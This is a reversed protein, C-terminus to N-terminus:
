DGFNGTIGQFGHKAQRFLWRIVRQDNYCFALIHNLTSFCSKQCEKKMSNLQTTDFKHNEITGWDYAASYMPFCPALTGDVRVILSNQGARCNWDELDGQIFEKMQSLREVSNVMHYGSKQKEVLWDVLEAVAARDEERIFTPNSYLHKFHPQETM